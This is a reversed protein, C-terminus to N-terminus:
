SAPCSRASRSCWGARASGTSPITSRPWRRRGPRAPERQLAGARPQAPRDVRRSGVAYGVRLGALAAIKSFTRLVLLRPFRALLAVGDPYEPDDCFDCYAEDLVVLPRTTASRRWCVGDAAGRRIITTAPNHPSCLIVAKTRPTVRRLVDDLDTEYGALPSPACGRAPWPSRRDRVARLVPTPVVIEDGPEFAALAVM